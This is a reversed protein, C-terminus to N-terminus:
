HNAPLLLVAREAANLLQVGGELRALPQEWPSHGCIVLLEKPATRLLKRVDANGKSRSAPEDPGEHLILIDPVQALVREILGLFTEADRRGPKHTPGVIGSVGGVRLGDLDVVSGDLLHAGARAAFRERERDSGFLDHNGAVGAVWRVERVFASWVPRVDGTAGRKDGAPASYLDGALLVGIQDRPPILAAEALGRLDEALVEGLLALAGGQETSPSVGQLDSAVLLASLGAPLRDVTGTLLPLRRSEVGGGSAANTYPLEYIPQDSVALIQM